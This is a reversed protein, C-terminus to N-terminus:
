NSQIGVKERVKALGQMTAVLDEQNAETSTALEDLQEEIREFRQDSKDFGNKMRSELAGIRELLEAKMSSLHNVIDRLSIDKKDDQM